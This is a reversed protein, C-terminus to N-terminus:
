REKFAPPMYFIALNFKQFLETVDRDCMACLTGTFYEGDWFVEPKGYEDTKADYPVRYATFGDVHFDTSGCEPCIPYEDPTSIM